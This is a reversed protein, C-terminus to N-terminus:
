PHEDRREKNEYDDIQAVLAEYANFRRVVEEALELDLAIGLATEPRHHFTTYLQDGTLHLRQAPGVSVTSM